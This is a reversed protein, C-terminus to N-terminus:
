NFDFDLGTGKMRMKYVADLRAEQEPTFYNKWDGVEGKRLFGAEKPRRSKDVWKCDASSDKKMNAFTSRHAIEDVLDQSIDQGMFKAISAVATPLDKKMDEYKLFLVNDDDKHAWWSLIHDFYDGFKMKGQIFLEFFQNWDLLPNHPYGRDHHWYSVAVDKPNRSVYIYKGPNQSPLGCPMVEYSFHSKFARPSSLEDINVQLHFPPGEHMSEIWLVAEAINKGDDKGRNLILRVIHMVWHTGCKPYSVVWIDDPRLKLNKMKEIWELDYYHPVRVGSIIKAPIEPIAPDWNSAAM